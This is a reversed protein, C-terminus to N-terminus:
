SVSVDSSRGITQKTRGVQKTPTLDKSIARRHGHATAAKSNKNSNAVAPKAVLSHRRSYYEDIEEQSAHSGKQGM